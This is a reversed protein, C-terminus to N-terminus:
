VVLRSVIKREACPQLMKPPPGNGQCATAPQQELKFLTWGQAPAIESVVSGSKGAACDFSIFRPSSPTTERNEEPRLAAAKPPPGIEKSVTNRLTHHGIVLCKLKQRRLKSPCLSAKLDKRATRGM